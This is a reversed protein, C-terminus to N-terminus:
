SAEPKPCLVRINALAEKSFMEMLLETLDVRKSKVMLETLCIM